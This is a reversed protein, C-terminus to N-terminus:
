KTAPPDFRSREYCARVRRPVRLGARGRTCHRCVAANANAPHGLRAAFGRLVRSDIRGLRSRWLACPAKVQVPLAGILPALRRPSGGGKTKVVTSVSIALVLEARLAARWIARRVAILLDRRERSRETTTSISSAM